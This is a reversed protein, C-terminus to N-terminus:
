HAEYNIKMYPYYENAPKWVQDFNQPADGNVGTVNNAPYVTATNPNTPSYVQSQNLANQNEVDLATEDLISTQPNTDVNKITNYSDLYTKTPTYV